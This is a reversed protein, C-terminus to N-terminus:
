ARVGTVESIWTDFEPDSDSGIPSSTDDQIPSVPTSPPTSRTTLAGSTTPTSSTTPIYQPIDSSTSVSTLMSSNPSSSDLSHDTMEVAWRPANPPSSRESPTGVKRVKLPKSNDKKERSCAYREDLKQLLQGLKESRWIPTRKILTQPDEADSEEDSMYKEGLSHM